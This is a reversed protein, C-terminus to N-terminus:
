KAEWIEFAPNGSIDTIQTTLKIKDIAKKTPLNCVSVVYLDKENFDMNNWDLQTITYKGFSDGEKRKIRNQLLEPNLSQYYALYLHPVGIYRCDGGFKYDIFVHDYHEEEIKLFDAIPRYGQFSEAKEKPYHFFYIQFFYIFSTFIAVVLILSRVKKTSTLIKFLGISIIIIYPIVSNLNRISNPTGHTLSPVIPSLIIFLIFFILFEKKINNKIQFFGIFFPIILPWLFLGQEYINKPGLLEAGSFFLYAVNTYELYKNFIAKFVIVPNLLVSKSREMAQIVYEGKWIIETNARASTHLNQIFNFFLPSILILFLLSPLYIKKFNKRYFFVLMIGFILPSFIWETHYCYMSLAFFLSSFYVLINKKKSVAKLFLFIGFTLFFLSVNSELVMRSTIIHWPSSILIISSILSIHLNATLEYTIFGLTIVTLIGCIVSPLKATTNTNELFSYLPSLLYAYGPAKYTGHSEFSIPLFANHEDKYNRNVSYADYAISIEDNSLHPAVMELKYIRAFLGVTGLFILILIILKNIKM